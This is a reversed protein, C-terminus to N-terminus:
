QQVTGPAGRRRGPRSRPTQAPDEGPGPPPPAGDVGGRPRRGPVAGGSEGSDGGSAGTDGGTAELDSTEQEQAEEEEEEDAPLPVRDIPIVTRLVARPSEFADRGPRQGSASVMVRLAWPLGDIDSDWNDHWQVGDYAQISLALVGEVLPTAVGGGDPYEDPVPDRRQWLVPGLDDEEIRYQTEYETGEGIYDIRRVPRLRSNFVLIEDRDVFGEVTRFGGDTLLLRTWFLDDSRLVSCLDRRLHALAADARLYAELQTRTLGRATTLQRLSLTVAGWVFAVIVGAVVLEALTFGPRPPRPHRARRRM